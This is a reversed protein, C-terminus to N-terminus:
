KLAEVYLSEHRRAPTDILLCAHQSDMFGSRCISSFPFMALLNRLEEYDYAYLHGFDRFVSNVLSIPTANSEQLRQHYPPPFRVSQDASHACYARLFLEADPVIIRVVGGPHLIRYVESIFGKAADFSLHELCHESFVGAISSDAFPLTRGADWCLDIGPLWNYDINVFAPHIRVGCGINLLNKGRVSAKGAQFRRNRALVSYIRQFKAYSRIPRNLSLRTLSFEM